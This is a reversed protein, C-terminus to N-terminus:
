YNAYAVLKALDFTVMQNSLLVLTLQTPYLVVTVYDKGKFLKYSQVFSYLMTLSLSFKHSILILSEIILIKRIM